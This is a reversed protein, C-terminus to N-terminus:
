EDPAFYAGTVRGSESDRVVFLTGSGLDGAIRASNPADSQSSELGFASSGIHRVMSERLPRLDELQMTSVAELGPEDWMFLAGAFFAPVEHSSSPTSLRAQMAERDLGAMEWANLAFLGVLYLLYLAPAALLGIGVVRALRRPLPEKGDRPGASLSLVALILWGSGVLSLAAGVALVLFSAISGLDEADIGPLSAIVLVLGLIVLSLGPLLALFGFSIRALRSKSMVVEAEEPVGLTNPM